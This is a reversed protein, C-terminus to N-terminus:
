GFFTYRVLKVLNYLMTVRGASLWPINLLTQSVFSGFMYIFVHSSSFSSNDLDAQAVCIVYYLLMGSIVSSVTVIWVEGTSCLLLTYVRWCHGM